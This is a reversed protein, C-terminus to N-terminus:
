SPEHPSRPDDGIPQVTPSTEGSQTGVKAGLAWHPLLRRM